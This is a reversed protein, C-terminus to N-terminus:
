RNPGPPLRDAWSADDSAGEAAAAAHDPGRRRWPQCRRITADLVSRAQVCAAQLGDKLALAPGRVM